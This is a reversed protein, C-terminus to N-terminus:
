ARLAALIEALSGTTAQRLVSELVAPDNSSALATELEAGAPLGRGGLGRPVGRMTYLANMGSPIFSAM